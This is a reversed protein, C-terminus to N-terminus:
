RLWFFLLELQKKIEKTSFIFGESNMLFFSIDGSELEFLLSLEKRLYRMWLYLFWFWSLGPAALSCLKELDLVVEGVWSDVLAAQKFVDFLVALLLLLWVGEPGVSCEVFFDESDAEFDLEVDPGDALLLFELSIEWIISAFAVLATWCCCCCCCCCCFCWFWCCCSFYWCCCWWSLGCVNDGVFTCADMWPAQVDGIEWGIWTSCCSLGIACVYWIWPSTTDVCSILLLLMIRSFILEPVSVM